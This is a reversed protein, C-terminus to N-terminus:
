QDASAYHVAAMDEDGHGLEIAREFQRDVAELLPLEVGLAGAAELVLHADKHALALPFAVDDFRMAAMARGKLQAYAPGLPTGDITDLFQEPEVGIARAFAITESLAEVIGVLWANLVLKMRSGAGPESGVWRTRSGVADFVPKCPERLEEPGSALILLEGQEAPQKTGSVPADVFAVHHGAALAALREIARVGVTSTQLWIADPSMTSLGGEDGSMVAEVADGDTLMTIVFDAGRAAEAPSGAVRAGDVALAEAKERTRNWGRVEFGARALNRAMPGGMIGTGLVAVSRGSQV